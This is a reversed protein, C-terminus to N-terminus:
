TLWFPLEDSRNKRRGVHGSPVGVNWPKVGRQLTASHAEVGAVTEGGGPYLSGSPVDVDHVKM